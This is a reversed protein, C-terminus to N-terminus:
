AHLAPPATHICLAVRTYVRSTHICLAISQTYVLSQTHVCRPRVDTCTAAQHSCTPWRELQAQPTHDMQLGVTLTCVTGMRLCVQLAGSPLSAKGNTLGHWRDWFHKAPRAGPAFRTNKYFGRRGGLKKKAALDVIGLGDASRTYVKHITQSYVYAGHTYVVSTHTCMPRGKRIFRPPRTYVCVNVMSACVSSKHIWM